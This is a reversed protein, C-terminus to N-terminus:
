KSINVQSHYYQAVIEFEARLAQSEADWPAYYMIFSFDSDMIREVMATLAGEYFDM